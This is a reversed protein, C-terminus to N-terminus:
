DSWSPFLSRCCFIKLKMYGIQWQAVTRVTRSISERHHWLPNKGHYGPLVMHGSTWEAESLSYWPNRRPYLPGTRKASSSGGKYHQFMLIIWPRLRGPVGQAVDAQWPVGFLFIRNIIMIPPFNTSNIYVYIYCWVFYEWWWVFYM